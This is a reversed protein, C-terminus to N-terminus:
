ITVLEWSGAAGAAGAHSRPPGGYINVELRGGRCPGARMRWTKLLARGTRDGIWKRSYAWRV